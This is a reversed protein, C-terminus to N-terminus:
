IASGGQAARKLYDALELAQGTTLKLPQMSASMPAKTTIVLAVFDEQADENRMAHVQIKQSAIFVKSLSVEGITREITGKLFSGTWSGSRIRGYLLQGLVFVVIVPIIYSFIEM